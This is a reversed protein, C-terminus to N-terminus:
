GVVFNLYKKLCTKWMQQVQEKNQNQQKQCIEASQVQQM